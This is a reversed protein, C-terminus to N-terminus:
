GEEDRHQLPFLPLQEEGPALASNAEVRQWQPGDSGMVYAYEHLPLTGDARGSLPLLRRIVFGVTEHGGAVAREPLGPIQCALTGAVLYYRQHAPQYLKLQKNVPPPPPPASPASRWFRKRRAEKAPAPLPVRVVPDLLDVPQPPDRWTEPRAIRDSIRAPEEALTALLQEMFDDSAFRLLQPRAAFPTTGRWLPRPAQWTVKHALANM